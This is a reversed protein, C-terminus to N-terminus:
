PQEPLPDTHHPHRSGAPSQRSFCTNHRSVPDIAHFNVEGAHFLPTKAHFPSYEARFGSATAHFRFQQIQWPCTRRSIQVFGCSIVRMYCSVASIRRSNGVQRKSVARILQFYVIKFPKVAVVASGARRFESVQYIAGGEVFFLRTKGPLFFAEM